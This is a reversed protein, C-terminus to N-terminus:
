KTSIIQKWKKEITNDSNFIISNLDKISETFLLEELKNQFDMALNQLEDDNYFIYGNVGDLINDSIGDGGRVIVKYGNLMFEKLQQSGNEYYPFHLYTNGLTHIQNEFDDKPLNGLFSFKHHVKGPYYIKAFEEESIGILVFSFPQTLQSLFVLFTDLGKRKDALLNKAGFVISRNSGCVHKSRFVPTPIFVARSGIKEVCKKTYNSPVIFKFGLKKFHISRLSYKSLKEIKLYSKNGNLLYADSLRALYNKGKKLKILDELSFVDDIKFLLVTDANYSNIKDAFGVSFIRAYEVGLFRGLLGILQNLRHQVTKNTFEQNVDLFKIDDFNQILIKKISQFAYYAGGYRSSYCVLLSM